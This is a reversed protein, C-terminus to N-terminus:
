SNRNSLEFSCLTNMSFVCILHCSLWPSFESFLVLWLFYWMNIIIIIIVVVVSQNRGTIIDLVGDYKPARQFICVYIHIKCKYECKKTSKNNKATAAATAAASYHKTHQCVIYYHSRFVGGTNIM